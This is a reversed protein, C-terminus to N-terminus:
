LEFLANLDASYLTTQTIDDASCCSETEQGITLVFVFMITTGKIIM